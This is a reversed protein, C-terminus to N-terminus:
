RLLVRRVVGALDDIAVALAPPHGGFSAGRRMCGRLHGDIESAAVVSGDARRGQVPELEIALGCDNAVQVRALRVVPAPVDFGHGAGAYVNMEVASGRARFWDAYPRCQHAPTYDDAEGLFFVMPATTTRPAHYPIACSPYFALHLAFRLGDSLTARRLPELATYLAVQGGKSFGM